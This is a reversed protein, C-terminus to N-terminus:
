KGSKMERTLMNVKSINKLIAIADTVGCASQILDACADLIKDPYSGPTNSGFDYIRAYTLACAAVNTIREVAEDNSVALPLGKLPPLLMTVADNSAKVLAQAAEDLPSGPQGTLEDLRDCIRAMCKDIKEFLAENSVLDTPTTEETM